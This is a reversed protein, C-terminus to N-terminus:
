DIRRAIPAPGYPSYTVITYLFHRHSDFYLNPRCHVRTYCLTSSYRAYFIKDM